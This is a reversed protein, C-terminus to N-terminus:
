PSSGPAPAANEAFDTGCRARRPKGVIGAARLAAVVSSAVPLRSQLYRTTRKSKIARIHPQYGLARVRGARKRAHDADHFVGLSLLLPQGGSADFLYLDKVGERRIASETHRAAAEDDFDNLEVRYAVALQRTRTFAHLRKDLVGSQAAFRTAASVSVPGWILCRPELVPHQVGVGTSASASTAASSAGASAGAKAPATSAESLLVIREGAHTMPTLQARPTSAGAWRLWAFLVLNALVLILVAVKM